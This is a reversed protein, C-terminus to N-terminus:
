PISCSCVKDLIIVLFVRLHPFWTTTPTKVKRQASKSLSNWCTQTQVNMIFCSCEIVNKVLRLVVQFSNGDKIQRQSLEWGPVNSAAALLPRESCSLTALLSLPALSLSADTAGGCVEPRSPKAEGDVSLVKMMQVRRRRRRWVWMWRWLQVGGWAEQTLM